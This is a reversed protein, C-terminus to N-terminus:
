FTKCMASVLPIDNINESKNATLPFIIDTMFHFTLQSRLKKYMNQGLGSRSLCFSDERDCLQVGLAPQCTTLRQKNNQMLISKRGEASRKDSM